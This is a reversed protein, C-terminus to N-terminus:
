DLWGLRQLEAYLAQAALAHGAANWHGDAPFYLLNRNSEARCANTLDLYAFDAAGSIRGLRDAVRDLQSVDLGTLSTQLIDWYCQERSPIYLVLVRANNSQALTAIDRAARETLEWGRAVVPSGPDSQYWPYRSAYLTGLSTEVPVGADPPMLLSRDFLSSLVEILRLQTLSSAAISQSRQAYYDRGGSQLYAEAAASETLDNIFFAWVWINANSAVAHRRLGAPYVYSNWGVWGLNVVPVNALTELVQPYAEDDEVGLGFTFSDGIIAIRQEVANTDRLGQANTHLRFHFEPHSTFDVNLNPKLHMLLEPDSQWLELSQRMYAFRNPLPMIRLFAEIALL